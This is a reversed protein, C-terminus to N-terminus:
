RRHPSACSSPTRRGTRRREADRNEIRLQGGAGGRAYSRGGADICDGVGDLGRHGGLARRERVRERVLGPPQEGGGELADDDMRGVHFRARHHLHACVEGAHRDFLRHEASGVGAGVRQRRAEAEGVADREGDEEGVDDAPVGRDGDLAVARQESRRASPGAVGLRRLGQSAADFVEGHGAGQWGPEAVDADGVVRQGLEGVEGRLLPGAGEVRAM